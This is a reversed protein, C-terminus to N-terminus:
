LAHAFDGSLGDPSELRLLWCGLGAEAPQIRAAALRSRTTTAATEVAQAWSQVRGAM